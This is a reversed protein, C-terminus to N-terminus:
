KPAKVTITGHMVAFGHVQCYYNYTGTGHFTHSFSGNGAISGNTFSSDTGTGPGTGSCATTTCRTVTHPAATSNSWKVTTGDTITLSGPKYCYLTGSCGTSSITVTSSSAASTTSATMIAFAFAGL